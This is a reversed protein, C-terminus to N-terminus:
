WFFLNANNDAKQMHKHTTYAHEHTGPYRHTYSYTHAHVHIHTHMWLSALYQSQPDKKKNNEVKYKSAPERVQVWM